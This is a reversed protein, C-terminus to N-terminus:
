MLLIEKKSRSSIFLKSVAPGAPGVNGDSGRAGAPGAPGPRGREGPQGRQGQFGFVDLPTVPAAKKIRGATKEDSTLKFLCIASLFM